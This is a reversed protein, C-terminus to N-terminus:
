PAPKEGGGQLEKAKEELAAGLAAKAESAFYRDDGQKMRRRRM